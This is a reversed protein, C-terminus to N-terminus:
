METYPKVYPYVAETLITRLGLKHYLALAPAEHVAFLYGLAGQQAIDHLAQGVLAHAIGRRRYADEVFVSEVRGLGNSIYSVCRAVPRGNVVAMYGNVGPASVTQYHLKHMLDAPSFSDPQNVSCWRMFDDHSLAVEIQISSDRAPIPAQQVMLDSSGWDSKKIFGAAQLASDLTAPTAHADLYVVADMDLSYFFHEIDEIASHVQDDRMRFLGAHNPDYRNTLTPNTYIVYGDRPTIRSITGFYAHDHQWISEIHM